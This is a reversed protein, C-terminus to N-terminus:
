QLNYVAPTLFLKNMPFAFHLFMLALSKEMQKVFTNYHYLAHKNMTKKQVLM